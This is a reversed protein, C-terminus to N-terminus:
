IDLRVQGAIEMRSDASLSSTEGGTLEIVRILGLESLIQSGITEDFEAARSRRTASEIANNSCHGGDAAEQLYVLVGLDQEAICQMSLRISKRCECGVSGSSRGSACRSQVRVLAPPGGSLNGRVLAVHTDQNIENRYSIARFPGFETQIESESIKKIFRETAMRYRILDAVSTMAMGHKRCFEQLDPVRAMAGDDNMVECIVGSPHLGALRALDVSAETQGERVLVGGNQARLPFMHGPRALDTPLCKPDIAQQITRARDHASIGTTVGELADISECFGTGFRSTNRRSMLPLSLEDCREGTLALCILGRGHVAMFNIIQPTVHEAAVTLDGENERDDDDVVIVMRGRRIENVADPISVFDMNSPTSKGKDMSKM